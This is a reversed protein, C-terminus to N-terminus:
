PIVVVANAASFDISNGEIDVNVGNKWYKARTTEAGVIHVDNGVVQISTAYAGGGSIGDTLNVSVGNKWYKALSRTNASNLERGVAYVDNGIVQISYVLGDKSGLTIVVGNKWYKPVVTNNINESGGIYVDNGLVFISYAQSLVNSLNTVVGNKWYKANGGDTGTVYVDAGVVQMAKIEADKTGDTLSVGVGNKWYKAVNKLSANQEYGALYVDNNVVVMAYVWTQSGNSVAVDNKFYGSNFDRANGIDNNYSYYVDNGVVVLSSGYGSGKKLFKKNKWYGGQGAIYVTETNVVFDATSTGTVGNVTVSIKGTTAGVPVSVKLETITATSVTAVKDGFKVINNAVDIGFDTGTITVVDGVWGSTAKFETIVPTPKPTEETKKCGVISIMAVLMALSIQYFYNKGKQVQTIM